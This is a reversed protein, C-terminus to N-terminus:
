RKWRREKKKLEVPATQIVCGVVSPSSRLKSWEKTNVKWRLSSAAPATVITEPDLRFAIDSTTSGRTKDLAERYEYFFPETDGKPDLIWTIHKIQDPVSTELPYIESVSLRVGEENRFVSGKVLVLKENDLNHGYEGFADAYCNM